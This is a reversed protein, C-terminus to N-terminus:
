LLEAVESIVPIIQIEWPLYDVQAHKMGEGTSVCMCMCVHIQM